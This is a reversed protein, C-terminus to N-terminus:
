LVAASLLVLPVFLFGPLWIVGSGAVLCGELLLDLASTQKSMTRLIVLLATSMFLPFFMLRAEAIAQSTISSAIICDVTGGAFEAKVVM